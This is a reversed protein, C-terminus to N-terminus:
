VSTPTANKTSRVRLRSHFVSNPLSNIIPQRLFIGTHAINPEGTKYLPQPVLTSFGQNPIRKSGYAYKSSLSTPSSVHSFVCLFHRHYHRTLGGVKKTPPPLTPHMMFTFPPTQRFHGLVLVHYFYTKLAVSARFYVLRPPFLQSIM